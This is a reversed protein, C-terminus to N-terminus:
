IAREGARAWLDMKGGRGGGGDKVGGDGGVVVGVSADPTAGHLLNVARGMRTGVRNISM